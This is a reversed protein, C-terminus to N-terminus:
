FMKILRRLYEQEDRDRGGESARRRLEQLLDRARTREPKTPVKEGHFSVGSGPRGAPDLGSGSPVPLLGITQGLSQMMARSIQRRIERLAELAQGQAHQGLDPRSASLAGSAAEMRAGALSFSEPVSGTKQGVQGALSRLQGRLTDQRGSLEAAPFSWFGSHRSVSPLATGASTMAFTDELLQEQDRVLRDFGEMIERMARLDTSASSLRANRLGSLLEDIHGALDRAADQAGLRTLEELEALMRDLALDGAQVPGLSDALADLEHLPLADDRRAMEQLLSVLARRVANIADAMAQPDGTANRLDLRAQELQHRADDVAGDEVRLALDWLLDVVSEPSRAMSLPLLRTASVRIGLFVVLDNGFSDPLASLEDLVRLVDSNQWFTGTILAKRVRVLSSAVPHNFHREPLHIARWDSGTEHGAGDRVLLRAEVDLGARPYASLDLPITIDVSSAPLGPVPLSYHDPASVPVTRVGEVARLELDVSTVGYDDSAVIRLPLRSDRGDLAGDGAVFPGDAVSPPHDPIIMFPQRVSHWLGRRIHLVVEPGTDGSIRATMRTVANGVDEFFVPVDGMRGIPLGSGHILALLSSGDPVRLVPVDGGLIHRVPSLGTYDPPMIWVEGQLSGTLVPTFAALVQEGSRPGSVFLGVALALVPIARVAGPDHDAIRPSPWPVHLSRAEAIMRQHHKQWLVRTVPDHVVFPHDCLVTLPHEPHDRELRRLADWIDPCVFGSLGYRFAMGLMSLFVVIVALHWGPSAVPVIGLLSAACFSLFVAWPAWFVQWLREWLLSLWSLVLRWQLFRPLILLPMM